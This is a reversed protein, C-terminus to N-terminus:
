GVPWRAVVDGHGALDREGAPHQRDAADLFLDEARHARAQGFDEQGLVVLGVEFVQRLLHDVGDVDVERGLQAVDEGQGQAAGGVAFAAEGESFRRAEGEVLFCFPGAPTVRRGKRDRDTGKCTGLFGLWSSGAPFISTVRTRSTATWSMTSTPGARRGSSPSAIPSRRRWGWWGTTASPRARPSWSPTSSRM